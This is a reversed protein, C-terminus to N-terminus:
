DSLPIAGAGSPQRTLLRALPHRALVPEGGIYRLTQEFRGIADASRTWEGYSPLRESRSRLRSGPGQGRLEVCRGLLERVKVGLDAPTSQMVRDFEELPQSTPACRNSLTNSRRKASAQESM